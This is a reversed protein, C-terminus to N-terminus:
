IKTFKINGSTEGSIKIKVDNLEMKVDKASPPLRIITEFFDIKRMMIDDSIIM